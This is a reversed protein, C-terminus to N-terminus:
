TQRALPIEGEPEQALLWIPNSLAITEGDADVVVARYLGSWGAQLPIVAAGSSFKSAELKTREYEQQRPVTTDPDDANAMALRIVEVSAGDPLGSALVSLTPGHDEAAVVHGMRAGAATRLDLTGAFLSPDGFFAHGSGLSALVEAPTPEKAWVWTVFNNEPKDWDAGTHNDNTGLGTLFIGARSCADWVTQHDQLDGGGRSRYGVEMMTCGLAREGLLRTATESVLNEREVTELKAKGSGFPHNYSVLGGADSVEAVVKASDRPTVPISLNEAIAGLHPSDLSIETGSMQTIGPFDGRYHEMLAAQTRLPEDGKVDAREITLSRFYGAVTGAAKDAVAGVSLEFSAADRGDIDPWLSSLDIAPEFAVRSWRGPPADVTIVGVGDQVEPSNIKGAGGVRYSLRYRGERRGNIAPRYSTLVDFVLAATESISEPFVDIEFRQGHLSTRYTQRDATAILRYESRADKAADLSLFLCDAESRQGTTQSDTGFEHRGQGPPATNEVTWRWQSGDQEDVANEFSVQQWYGVAQMRWDHDTWCVIDVGMRSAEALQAQMSGPGESFCSHVHLAAVYTRLSTSEGPSRTPAVSTTTGDQSSSCGGVGASLLPGAILLSRRSFVPLPKANDKM